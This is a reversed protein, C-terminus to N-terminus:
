KEPEDALADNAESSIGSEDPKEKGTDEERNAASRKGIDTKILKYIASFLPVCVLM